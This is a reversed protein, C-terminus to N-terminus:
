VRNISELNSMSSVEIYTSNKRFEMLNESGSYSLASKVNNILMNLSYEVSGKSSVFGSVGEVYLNKLDKTLEENNDKQVELSASGRFVHRGNKDTDCEDHGSFFSGMMVASAGAALSKAVDGNNKIGGDSIIGNVESSNINEYCDMVSSLVPVGFGTVMRTTCAAGGGIGVRVSDAGADMLDKYAEYSSVNGCMIHVGSGVLLRLEKVANVVIELHGLAVELLLVKIGLKGLLEICSKNKSEEISIAFGILNNDVKPLISKLRAIREEFNTYRPLIALGGFSTVKEIMSDSTIFDMPAMIIPYRLHIFSKPRIPNGIVTDLNISGRTVINSKKPVLLIDDFCISRTSTDKKM